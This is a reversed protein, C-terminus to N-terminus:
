RIAESNIGALPLSIRAGPPTMRAAVALRHELAAGVQSWRFRGERMREHGSRSLRRVLMPDAQLEGLAAAVDGASVAALELPSFVPVGRSVPELFRAAEEGSSAWIEGCASHRPVIQAGGAAAHECSVLGWGEGMSTSLGVDCANYLLNLEADDLCRDGMPDIDVREGMGLAGIRELLEARDSPSHVAQHLCLRVRAPKDRAFEAFGALTLDLRKRESPRSANLVVFSREPDPLDPFVRRKASARARADFGAAVLEPFPHFAAVDVGHGVVGVLPRTSPDVDELALLGREIEGRAWETFVLVEDFGFLPRLLEPDTIVGDLPIYAVLRSGQRADGLARAYRAMQWLDHYFLITEPELEAALRRLAQAGFLDGGPLAPYLRFGPRETPADRYGIGVVHIEWRQALQRILSELVRTLGIGPAVVGLALLRPKMVAALDM